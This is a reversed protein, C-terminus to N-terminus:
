GKCLEECVLIRSSIVFRMPEKDAGEFIGHEAQDIEAVLHTVPEFSAWTGPVGQEL